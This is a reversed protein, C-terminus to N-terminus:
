KRWHSHLFITRSNYQGIVAKFTFEIGHTFDAIELLYLIQPRGNQLNIPSTSYKILRKLSKTLWHRPDSM